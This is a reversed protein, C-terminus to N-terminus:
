LPYTAEVVLDRASRTLSNHSKDLIARDPLSDCEDAAPSAVHHQHQPHPAAQTPDPAATIWAARRAAGRRDM